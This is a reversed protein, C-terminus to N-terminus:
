FVKKERVRKRTDRRKKEEKGATAAAERPITISFCTRFDVSNSGKNASRFVRFPSPFPLQSENACWCWGREIRVRHGHTHTHARTASVAGRRRADQRGPFTGRWYAVSYISDREFQVVRRSKWATCRQM